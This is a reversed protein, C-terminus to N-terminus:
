FRGDCKRRDILDKLTDIWEPDLGIIIELTLGSVQIGLPINDEVLKLLPWYCRQIVKMRESVPIASYMLNLYFVVYYRNSSM